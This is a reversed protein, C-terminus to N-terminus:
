GGGARRHEELRALVDDVGMGYRRRLLIEALTLYPSSTAHHRYLDPRRRDALPRGVFAELRQLEADSTMLAHYSLVLQEHRGADLLSLVRLNHDYWRDLLWYSRVLNTPVHHIREYRYHPWVAVPHRFVVILRHEPLEREWAPYTLTTRPDKFGWVPYREECRVIMERMRRRLAPAPVVPDPARLRLTADDKAGLLAMNIHLAEQREYKNGRDYSVSPDIADDMNIGSHHLIQAVLTTGSKHMGLIVYIM